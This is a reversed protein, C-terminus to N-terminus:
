RAALRQEYRKTLPHEPDAGPGPRARVDRAGLREGCSGCIRHADVHGGCGRHELVVPPGADFGGHADGWTMMSVLVPWLDIGKDTLRYEFREPREQYRHRELVGEDVLKNLRTVLVNRAIGLDAQMEEFRRVGFFTERLILLTWREGVVELTSAVACTQSEYDSGLPM